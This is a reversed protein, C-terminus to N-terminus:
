ATVLSTQAMAVSPHDTTNHTAYFVGVQGTEDFLQEDRLLCIEMPVVGKIYTQHIHLRSLDKCNGLEAPVVGSM